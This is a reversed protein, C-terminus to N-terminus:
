RLFGLKFHRDNSEQCYLVVARTLNNTLPHRPKAIRYIKIENVVFAKSLIMEQSMVGSINFM